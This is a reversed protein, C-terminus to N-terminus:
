KVLTVRRTCRESGARLELVYVGAAARGGRETRGDWAAHHEGARLPGNVLTAVVRGAVDYVRLRVRTDAPVSFSLATHGPTPNPRPAAFSLRASAGAPHVGVTSGSQRLSWLGEAWATAAWGLEDYGGFVRMRDAASDYAAAAIYRGGPLTAGADMLSWAPDGALSLAWTESHGVEEQDLGGFVLMQARIPDYAANHDFLAGPATGSPALLQWQLPGSLPLAWLEASAVFSAGGGGYVLLQDNAPDYVAAAAYRPAPLPGAPSLRTWTPTGSLSLEWLEDFYVFGVSEVWDRGGFLLMRDRLPDYVAVAAHRVQPATGAPSLRTWAQTGSLSLAWLDNADGRSISYGGFVLLRDRVPDYIAAGQERSDPPTGTTALRTWLTTGSGSAAWVDMNAHRWAETYGGFVLTRRGRSDYVAMAGERPCPMDRHPTLETWAPSGDLSLTWTDDFRVGTAGLGGFVVAQGRTQDYVASLGARAAPPGGAPSLRTWTWTSGLPMAWVENTFGHAGQGGILLAQDNVPDYVAGAGVRPSPSLGYLVLEQWGGEYLSLDLGWADGAPGLATQGGFVVMMHLAPDYFTAAQSRAAPAMGGTGIQTWAEAGPDLSLAWADNFWTTDNTGCGVVMRGRAADYVASHQHRPSPSTGAPHLHTWVPPDTLSMAWVDNTLGMEDGLSGGFLVLRDNAQDYIVSHGSRSLPLSDSLALPTWKPDGSLPLAWVERLTCLASDQGGFVLVRDRLPDYVASQGWRGTPPMVQDWAVESDMAKSPGSHRTAAAGTWTPRAALASPSALAPAPLALCTAALVLCVLVIHPRGFM